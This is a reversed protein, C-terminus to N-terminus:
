WPIRLCPVFSKNTKTATNNTVMAKNGLSTDANCRIGPMQNGMHLLRIGHDIKKHPKQKQSTHLISESFYFCGTQSYPTPVLM